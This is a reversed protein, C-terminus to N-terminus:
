VWSPARVGLLVAPLEAVSALHLDPQVRWPKGLGDGVLCTHLGVAAGGQVDDHPDNGVYLTAQARAGLRELAALFIERSPKRVGLESSIVKVPLLEALGSSALEGETFLWQANSVLGIAFRTGLTQLADRAGPIPRLWQRSCTRFSQAADRVEQPGPERGLIRELHRTVVPGLDPEAHPRPGPNMRRFDTALPHDRELARAQSGYRDEIWREFARATEPATENTKIDLLTGYLDFLVHTLM